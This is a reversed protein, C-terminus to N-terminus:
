DTNGFAAELEVAYRAAAMALRQEAIPQAFEVYGHTVTMSRAGDYKADDDRVYYEQM